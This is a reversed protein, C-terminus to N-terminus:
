WNLLSPQWALQCYNQRQSRSKCFVLTAERTEGGLDPRHLLTRLLSGIFRTGYAVSRDHECQTHTYRYLRKITKSYVNKSVRVLNAIDYEKLDLLVQDWLEVPLDLLSAM